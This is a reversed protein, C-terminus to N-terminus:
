LVRARVDNENEKPLPALTTDRLYNETEREISFKHFGFFYARIIYYSPVLIDDSFLLMSFRVFYISLPILLKSLINHNRITKKTCSTTILGWGPPDVTSKVTKRLCLPAFRCSKFLLNYIYTRTENALVSGVVLRFQTIFGSIDM